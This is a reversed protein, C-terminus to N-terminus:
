SLTVSVPGFPISEVPPSNGDLATAWLRYPGAALATGNPLATLDRPPLTTNPGSAQDGM